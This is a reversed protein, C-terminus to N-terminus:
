KTCNMKEKMGTGVPLHERTLSAGQLLNNQMKGTSVKGHKTVKSCCVFECFNWYGTLQILAIM